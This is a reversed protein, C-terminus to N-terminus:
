NKITQLQKEQVLKNFFGPQAVRLTDEEVWSPHPRVGDPRQRWVVLFNYKNNTHKIYNMVAEVKDGEAYGGQVVQKSVHRARYKQKLALNLTVVSNVQDYSQLAPRGMQVDDDLNDKQLDLELKDKSIYIQEAVLDEDIPSHKYLPDEEKPGDYNKCEYEDVLHLFYKIRHLSAWRGGGDHTNAEEDARWRVLYWLPCSDRTRPARNIKKSLISLAEDAKLTRKRREERYEQYDM